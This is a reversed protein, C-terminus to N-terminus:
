KMGNKVFKAVAQVEDKTMGKVPPMKGKGGEVDKVIDAESDKIGNLDKAGLKQGMPTKGKGDPGHCAACKKAFLAKGDEARAPAALAVAFCVALAVAIRNM